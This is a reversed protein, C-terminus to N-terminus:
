WCPDILGGAKAIPKCIIEEIQDRRLAPVLFQAESVAGPLGQLPRLRWHFGLADDPRFASQLRRRPERNAVISRIAGSGRAM